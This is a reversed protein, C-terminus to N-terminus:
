PAVLVVKFIFLFFFLFFSFFLFSFSFLLIMKTRQLLPKLRRGVPDDRHAGGLCDKAVLLFAALGQLLTPNAFIINREAAPTAPL